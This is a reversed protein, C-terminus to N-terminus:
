GEYRSRLKNKDGVAEHQLKSWIHTGNLLWIEDNEMCKGFARAQLNTSMVELNKAIDPTCKEPTATAIVASFDSVNGTAPKGSLFSIKKVFDKKSVSMVAYWTDDDIDTKLMEAILAPTVVKKAWGGTSVSSSAVYVTPTPTVVVPPTAPIPASPLATMPDHHCWGYPFGVLRSDVHAGTHTDCRYDGPKTGDVHGLHGQSPASTSIHQDQPVCASVAVALVAAVIFKLM